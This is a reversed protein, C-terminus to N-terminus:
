KIGNEKLIEFFEKKRWERTELKKNDRYWDKSKNSSYKIKSKTIWDPTSITKSSFYTTTGIYDIPKPRKIFTGNINKHGYWYHSTQCINTLRRRVIREEMYRRWARDRM